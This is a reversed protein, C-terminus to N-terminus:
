REIRTFGSMLTDLTTEKIVKSDIKSEAKTINSSNKESVIVARSAERKSEKKISDVTKGIFLMRGHILCYKADVDDSPNYSSFFEMIQMIKKEDVNRFLDILKHKEQTNFFQKNSGYIYQYCDIMFNRLGHVINMYDTEEITDLWKVFEFSDNNCMKLYEIYTSNPVFGFFEEMVEDNLTDADAMFDIMNVIERPCNRASALLFKSLEQKPKVVGKEKCIRELLTLAEETRLQKLPFKIARNKLEQRLKGIETTCAIVYINKKMGSIYELLINQDDKTLAQIEEFIYVANDGAVPKLTFVEKITQKFDSREIAGMNLKVLNMSKEGNDLQKINSLCSNCKCCPEGNDQNTCTLALGCIEALTSKGTGSPGHFLSFQPFSKNRLSRRLLNKVTDQGVVDSIQRPRFKEAM